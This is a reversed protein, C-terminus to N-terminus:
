TMIKRSKNGQLEKNNHLKEFSWWATLLNSAQKVNSKFQSTYHKPKKDTMPWIMVKVNETGITAATRTSIFITKLSSVPDM